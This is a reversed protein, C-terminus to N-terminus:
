GRESDFDKPRYPVYFEQERQWAEERRRKTKAGPNPGPRRRKRGVVEAFVTQCM